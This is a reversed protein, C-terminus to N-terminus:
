LKRISDIFGNWVELSYTEETGIYSISYYVDDIICSLIRKQYNNSENTITWCSALQYEIGNLAPLEEVVTDYQPMQEAYEPYDAFMESYFANLDNYASANYNYLNKGSEGSATEILFYYELSGDDNYVEYSYSTYEDIAQYDIENTSVSEKASNPTKFVLEGIVTDHCNTTDYAATEANGTCAALLLCMTVALIAAIIKNM